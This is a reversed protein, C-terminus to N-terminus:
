KKRCGDLVFERGSILKVIAAAPLPSEVLTGPARFVGATNHALVGDQPLSRFDGARRLGPIFLRELYANDDSPFRDADAITRRFGAAGSPAIARALLAWLGGPGLGVLDVEEYERKLYADATLIDQVRIQDATRNYTTFFRANTDRTEHFPEVFFVARRARLLERVLEPDEKGAILVAGRVKGRPKWLRGEVRDTGRSLLVPAGKGDPGPEDVTVLVREPWGAALAYRLSAPDQPLRTWYDLLAKEDMGPPRQRGYWVLLDPPREVHFSAEKPAEKTDRLWRAFWAYVAERSERNYNHDAHFQVASVHDEAGLLRYIDRMAPFEVRMTDRTWDGTASVMLMPRPAALAAIEINSQDLRLGPANECPSGGQMFTSIMNVPASVRVREDVAALLFAQTAGGSAGTVALRERDVEPLSELFDLARISDWLQLGLVGLGWLQARRGMEGVWGFDHGVQNSDNFGVMDYTFVVYGQRALNIARGPVSATETNELRGYAWHGHPSLVGPFPPTRGLPRYLNGTVFFGPLSEFFVKEVSYESRELRGFIEARLPTRPPLPWLGASFLVRRQLDAAHAQWQEPTRFRPPAWPTDVGRLVARSDEEPIASTQSAVPIAALGILLAAVLGRTGYRSQRNM